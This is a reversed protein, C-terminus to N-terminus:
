AMPKTGWKAKGTWPKTSHMCENSGSVEQTDWRWKQSCVHDM